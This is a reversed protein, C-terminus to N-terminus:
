TKEIFIEEIAYQNERGIWEIIMFFVILILTALAAKKLALSLFFHVVSFELSILFLM